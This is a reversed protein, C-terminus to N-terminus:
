VARHLNWAGPHRAQVSARIQFIEAFNFASYIRDERWCHHLVQISKWIASQEDPKVVSKVVCFVAAPNSRLCSEFNEYESLAPM